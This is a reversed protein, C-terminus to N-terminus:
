KLNTYISRRTHRIQQIFLNYMANVTSTTKNIKLKANRIDLIDFWHRIISDIANDDNMERTIHMMLYQVQNEQELDSFRSYM